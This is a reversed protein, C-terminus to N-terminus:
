QKTEKRTANFARLISRFDPSQLFSLTSEDYYYPRSAIVPRILGAQAYRHITPVSLGARAALEATSLM